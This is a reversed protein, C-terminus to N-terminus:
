HQTYEPTITFTTTRATSYDGTDDMSLELVLECYDTSASPSIIISSITLAADDLSELLGTGTASGAVLVGSQYENMTWTLTVEDLTAADDTDMILSTLEVDISGMNEIKYTLTLTEGPVFTTVTETVTAVGGAVSVNAIKSTTSTTDTVTRETILVEMTASTANVTVSVDDTWLAYASGMLLLAIILVIVIANRKKM